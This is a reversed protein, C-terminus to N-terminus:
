FCPTIAFIILYKGTALTMHAPDKQLELIIITILVPRKHPLLIKCWTTPLKIQLIQINRWFSPTKVLKTLLKMLPTNPTKLVSPYMQTSPAHLPPRPTVTVTILPPPITPPQLTHTQLMPTMHPITPYLTTPYETTPYETIHSEMPTPLTLQQNLWYSPLRYWYSLSSFYSYKHFWVRNLLSSDLNLQSLGYSSSLSKWSPNARITVKERWSSFFIWCWLIPM